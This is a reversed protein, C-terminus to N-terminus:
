KSNWPMFGGIPPKTSLWQHPYFKVETNLAVIYLSEFWTLIATFLFVNFKSSFISLKSTTSLFFSLTQPSALCKCVPLTFYLYTFKHLIFSSNFVHPNQILIFIKILKMLFSCTFRIVHQHHDMRSM